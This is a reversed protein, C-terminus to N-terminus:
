ITLNGACCIEELNLKGAQFTHLHLQCQPHVCDEESFSSRSLEITRNHTEGPFSIVIVPIPEPTESCSQLACSCHPLYCLQCVQKKVPFCCENLSFNHRPPACCHGSCSCKSSRTFASHCPTAHGHKHMCHSTFHDLHHVPVNWSSAMNTQHHHPHHHQHQMKNCCYHHSAFQSNRNPTFSRSHEGRVVLTDPHHVTCNNQSSLWRIDREPVRPLISPIIEPIHTNQPRARMLDEHGSPSKLKEMKPFNRSPIKTSSFSFSPKPPCSTAEAMEFTPSYQSTGFQSPVAPNIFLNLIESTSQTSRMNSPKNKKSERFSSKSSPNPNRSTRKEAASSNNEREGNSKFVPMTLPSPSYPNKNKQSKSPLLTDLNEHDVPSPVTISQASHSLKDKLTDATPNSDHDLDSVFNRENPIPNEQITVTEKNMPELNLEVGSNHNALEDKADEVILINKDDSIADNKKLEREDQVSNGTRYYFNPKASSRGTLLSPFTPTGNTNQSFM